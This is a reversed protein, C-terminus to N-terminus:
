EAWRFVDSLYGEYFRCGEEWSYASPRGTVATELADISGHWGACTGSWPTGPGGPQKTDIGYDESEREIMSAPPKGEHPWRAVFAFLTGDGDARLEFRMEAFSILAQDEVEIIDSEWHHRFVGGPRLDMTIKSPAMWWKRLGESTSVAVWVTELPAELRRLWVMSHRNVLRGANELLKGVPTTKM